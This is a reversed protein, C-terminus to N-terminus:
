EPPASSSQPATETNKVVLETKIAKIEEDTLFPLPEDSARVLGKLIKPIGTETYPASQVEIKLEEPPPVPFLFGDKIPKDIVIPPLDKKASACKLTYKSDYFEKPTVVAPFPIQHKEHYISPLPFCDGDPLQRILALLEEADANMKILHSLNFPASLREAQFPFQQFLKPRQTDITYLM